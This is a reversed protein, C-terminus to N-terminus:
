LFRSTEKVKAKQLSDVQNSLDNQEASLSSKDKELRFLISFNCCYGFVLLAHYLVFPPCHLCM